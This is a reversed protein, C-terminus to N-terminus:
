QVGNSCLGFVCNTIEAAATFKVRWSKFPRDFPSPTAPNFFGESGNDGSALAEITEFADAPAVLGHGNAEAPSLDIEVTTNVAGDYTLFFQGGNFIEANYWDTTLVPSGASVTEKTYFWHTINQILSM